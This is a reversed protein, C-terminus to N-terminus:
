KRDLEDLTINILDDYTHVGKNAKILRLRKILSSRVRIYTWGDSIMVKKDFDRKPILVICNNKGRFIVFDAEKQINRLVPKSSYRSSKAEIYYVINNKICKFDFHSTAKKNSLWEVKDFKNKLFEFAEKEFDRGIKVRNM